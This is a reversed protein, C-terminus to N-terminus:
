TCLKHVAHENIQYTKICIDSYVDDKDMKDQLQLQYIGSTVTGFSDEGVGGSATTCSLGLAM